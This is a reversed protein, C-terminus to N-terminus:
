INMQQLVRQYLPDTIYKLTEDRLNRRATADLVPSALVHLCILFRPLGYRSRNRGNLIYLRVDKPVNPAKALMRDLSSIISTASTFQHSLILERLRRGGTSRRFKPLVAAVQRLLFDSTEWLSLNADLLVSLHRPLGYKTLIWLSAVFFFPSKETFTSTGLREGLERIRRHLGSNPAVEWSTLVLAAHCLSGDDLAHDGLLYDRIGRFTTISPGLAILYRWIAERQGPEVLLSALAYPQAHDDQIGTFLTLYRRTVKDWHGYRDRRLHADFKRRLRRILVRMRYPHKEFSRVKASEEDLYRNENTYFFRMAEKASLVQTKGLNLRLGRTMLLQDLDRLVEKAETPSDTAVTIDDVWRVFAGSSRRQLFEDVEFLYIHSLLRPADFDVQPLSRGPAPLYDPRWSITDLVLFLIDLTVENVDDLESLMNRLHGYDINDYYNAIDTTCVCSHASTIELRLKSFQRWRRFWIYDKHFRIEPKIFGHSRSFFSNASPQRRLAAPLLSEVICQLVLADHPSPIVLTRSIGLKKEIRVPISRTPAYRGALLAASLAHFLEARNWHFDNYDHLDSVEQGRLGERVYTKWAAAMASPSFVERLRRRRADLRKTHFSATGSVLPASGTSTM